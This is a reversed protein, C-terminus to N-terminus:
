LKENIFEFTFKPNKKGLYALPHVHFTEDRDQLYRFSKV